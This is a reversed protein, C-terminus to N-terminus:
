PTRRPAPRQIRWYSIPWLCRRTLFTNGIQLLLRPNEAACRRNYRDRPSAFPFGLGGLPLFSSPPPPRQWAKLFLRDHAGASERDAIGSRLDNALDSRLPISAVERNKEDAAELEIYPPTAELQVQALTLSALESKGRPGRIKKQQMLTVFICYNGAGIDAFPSISSRAKLSSKGAM